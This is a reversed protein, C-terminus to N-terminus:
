FVAFSSKLNEEDKLKRIRETEEIGGSKKLKNGDVFGGLEEEFQNLARSQKGIERVKEAKEIADLRSQHNPQLAVVESLMADRLGDMSQGPEVLPLNPKRVRNRRNKQHEKSVHGVLGFTELAKALDEKLDDVLDEQLKFFQQEECVIDLDKEWIAKWKPKETVIYQNMVEIAQQAKDIDSEVVTLQKDSPRAGRQAVDKRLAEVVDQLDDVTTLLLDSDESLKGHCADMYKRNASSLGDFNSTRFQEVQELFQRLMAVNRAKDAGAIQKIVALERRIEALEPKVPLAQSPAVVPTKLVVPADIKISKLSEQITATFTEQMKGVQTQLAVVHRELSRIQEANGHDLVNLSIICGDKVDGLLHEELEYPVETASDQIYIEPFSDGFRTYNFKEIFLLRLSNFTVPYTLVTKKTKSNIRLFSSVTGKESLVSRRDHPENPYPLDKERSVNAATYGPGGVSPAEEKFENLDKPLPMETEKTLKAYQYASFRRLARRKLSDGNQLQKLADLEEGAGSSHSSHLDPSIVVSPIVGGAGNEPALTPALTPVLTPALTPVTPVPVETGESLARYSDMRQKPLRRSDPEKLSVSSRSVSQRGIEHGNHQRADPLPPLQSNALTPVPKKDRVELQKRKLNRLLTVIIQRITPLYKDLSQQSPPECLAEELVVRLSHPVDGLDTVDVGTTSFSRCAVKFDGGLQVYANLVDNETASGQAWQTLSELLHKTAVLM